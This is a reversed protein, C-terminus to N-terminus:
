NKKILFSKGNHHVYLVTSTEPPGCLLFHVGSVCIIQKGPSFFNVNKMEKRRQSLQEKERGARQRAGLHDTESKCIRCLATLEPEVKEFFDEM